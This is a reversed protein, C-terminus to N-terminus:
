IMTFPLCMQCSAGGAGSLIGDEDFMSRIIERLLVEWYFGNELKATESNILEEMFVSKKVNKQLWPFSTTSFLLIQPDLKGFM